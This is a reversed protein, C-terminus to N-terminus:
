SELGRMGLHANLRPSEVNELAYSIALSILEEAAVDNLEFDWLAKHADTATKAPESFSDNEGLLDQDIVFKNPMKIYTLSLREAYKGKETETNYEPDFAIEALGVIPDAVVYIYNGEIYCMPTKVWPINYATAFFKQAIQHSTLQVPVARYRKFKGDGYDYTKNDMPRILTNPIDGFTEDNMVGAMKQVDVATVASVFYLMDEPLKTSRVNDPISRNYYEASRESFVVNGETDEYTYSGKKGPPMANRSKKDVATVTTKVSTSSKDENNMVDNFTISTKGPDFYLMKTTVLPQLDAVSKVDAELPSRRVNNGTVKQAILAMYAKDLVTAIEYETLSPYSSTVNAKDYEIMFKTFIDKHTM